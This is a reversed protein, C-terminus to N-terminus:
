AFSFLIRNKASYNITESAINFDFSTDNYNDVIISGIIDRVNKREAM